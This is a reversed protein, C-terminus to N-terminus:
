RLSVLPGSSDKLDIIVSSTSTPTEGWSFTGKSLFWVKEINRNEWVGCIIDPDVADNKNSAPVCKMGALFPILSIIMLVTKYNM